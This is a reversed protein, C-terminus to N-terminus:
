KRQPTSVGCRTAINRRTFLDLRLLLCMLGFKLKRDILTRV